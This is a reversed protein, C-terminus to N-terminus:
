LMFFFIFIMRQSRQLRSRAVSHVFQCAFSFLCFHVNSSSSNVWVVDLRFCWMWYASGWNEETWLCGARLRNTSQGAIKKVKEHSFVAWGLWHVFFHRDTAGAKNVLLARVHPKLVLVCDVRGRSICMSVSMDHPEFNLQLDGKLTRRCCTREDDVVFTFRWAKPQKFVIWRLM